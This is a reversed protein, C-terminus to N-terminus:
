LKELGLQAAALLRRTLDVQPAAFVQATEGQEVIRGHDLVVVRDTIARIVNMEHTILLITLGLKRNIDKLLALISTTTEPDLASTAEDSLLLDPEAALARAIGERPMDPNLQFPHWRVSAPRGNLAKELRRKGIFCWPCIVDSIVDITLM